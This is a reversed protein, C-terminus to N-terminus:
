SLRNVCTSCPSIDWVVVVNLSLWTGNKYPLSTEEQGKEGTVTGGKKHGRLTVSMHITVTVVHLVVSQEQTNLRMDRV